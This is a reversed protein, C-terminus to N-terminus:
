SYTHLIFVIMIEVASYRTRVQLVGTLFSTPFVFAGLWISVPQENTNTWSTFYEVRETLNQMWAGLNMVSPYALILSTITNVFTHTFIFM